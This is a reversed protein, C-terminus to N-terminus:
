GTVPTLLDIMQQRRGYEAWNLPTAGFSRDRLGPDAGLRLRAVPSFESGAPHAVARRALRRGPV